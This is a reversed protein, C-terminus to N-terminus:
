QQGGTWQVSVPSTPSVLASVPLIITGTKAIPQNNFDLTTFRGRVSVDASDIEIVGSPDNNVSLNVAATAATPNPSLTGVLSGPVYRDSPLPCSPQAKGGGSLCSQLASILAALVETRGSSSVQVTVVTRSPSVLAVNDTSAALQLLATNFSVPLAGPFLLVTGSPVASDLISARNRAQTLALKTAVATSVLRWTHNHDIVQVRDHVERVGNSFGLSYSVAVTARGGSRQVSDVRVDSIPAIQQQARLVNTTLLTRPGSPLGGYSLAAPADGGALAAFYGKVAGDPGSDSGYAQIAMVVGAVLVACAVVVASWFLGRHRTTV